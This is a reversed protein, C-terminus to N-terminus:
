PGYCILGWEKLPFGFRSVDHYIENFEPIRLKKRGCYPDQYHVWARSVGRVVIWHGGYLSVLCVVPRSHETSHRLVDVPCTGALIPLRGRLWTEMQGPDTGHLRDVPLTCELEDKGFFKLVTMAAARGCDYQQTQRIDPLNLM